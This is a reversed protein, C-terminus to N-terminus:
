CTQAYPKTTLAVPTPHGGWSGSKSSPVRIPGDASSVSSSVISPTQNESPLLYISPFAPRIQQVTSNLLQEDKPDLLQFHKSLKAMHVMVLACQPRLELQGLHDWHKHYLHGLCHWLHKMIRRITPEFDSSFESGYKTPFISENRSTKEVSSMVCDMYQMASYTHRKGKEDMYQAKSTGPFNMYPCSVPVCIESLSGCLANVHDFIALTNTAIWERKEIGTPLATVKEMLQDDISDCVCLESSTSKAPGQRNNIGGVSAANAVRKQQNGTKQGAAAEKVDKKRSRSFMCWMMFGSHFSDDNSHSSISNSSGEM